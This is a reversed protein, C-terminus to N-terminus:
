IGTAIIEYKLIGIDIDDINETSFIIETDSNLLDNIEIMYDNIIFLSQNKHFGFKIVIAKAKSLSNRFSEDLQNDFEDIKCTGVIGDIKGDHSFITKYDAIDLDIDNGWAQKREKYSELAVEYSIVLFIANNSKPMGTEDKYKKCLANYVEDDEECDVAITGLYPYMMYGISALDLVETLKTDPFTEKMFNLFEERAEDDVFIKDLSDICLDGLNNSKPKDNYVKYFVMFFTDRKRKKVVYQDLTKLKQPM